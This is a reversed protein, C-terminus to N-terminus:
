GRAVGAATDGILEELSHGEGELAELERTVIARAHQMTESLATQSEDERGLRLALDAIALGQVVEDYLELARRRRSRAFREDRAAEAERREFAGQLQQYDAFRRLTIDLASQLEAPREDLLYAYVGRRSAEAVWAPDHEPLLAIVPCYAERVIASVHDLAHDSNEGLGVIAVDPRLKATAAGVESVDIVEAVVEHGLGDIVDALSTLHDLRQNAILIRLHVPQAAGLPKTGPESM